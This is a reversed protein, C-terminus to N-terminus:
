NFNNCDRDGWIEGARGVEGGMNLGGEGRVNDKDMPGKYMNRSKSRGRREGTIM